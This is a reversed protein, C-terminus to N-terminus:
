QSHHRSPSVIADVIVSPRSPNFRLSLLPKKKENKKRLAVSHANAHTISCNCPPMLVTPATLWFHSGLHLVGTAPNGEYRCRLMFGTNLLFFFFLHSCIPVLPQTHVASVRGATITRRGGDSREDTEGYKKNMADIIIKKKVHIKMVLAPHSGRM